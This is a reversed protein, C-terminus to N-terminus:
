QFLDICVPEEPVRMPQFDPLVVKTGRHSRISPAHSRVRICLVLAVTILVLTPVPYFVPRFLPIASLLAPLFLNIIDVLVFFFCYTRSSSWLIAPVPYFVPRFVYGPCFLWFLISLFSLLRVPCGISFPPSSHDALLISRSPFAFLPCFLCSLISLVSFRFLVTLDSLSFSQLIAYVPYLLYSLCSGSLVVFLFLLVPITLMSLLYYIPFVPAPCSLSCFFSSLFPWCLSSIISLFLLLRVPCRVSFPPCSHDAYLPSQLPLGHCCDMLRGELAISRSRPMGLLVCQVYVIYECM